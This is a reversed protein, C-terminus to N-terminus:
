HHTALAALAPKGRRGRVASQHQGLCNGTSAGFLTVSPIPVISWCRLGHSGASAENAIVAAAVAARRCIQEQYSRHRRASEGAPRQQEDMPGEGVGVIHEPLERGCGMALSKEIRSVAAFSSYSLTTNKSCAVSATLGTMLASSSPRNMAPEDPCISTMACLRPPSITRQHSSANPFDSSREDSLGTRTTKAPEGSCPVDSAAGSLSCCARLRNEFIPVNAAPVIFSAPVALGNRQTALESTSTTTDTVPASALM